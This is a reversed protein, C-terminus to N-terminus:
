AVWSRQLGRLTKALEELSELYRTLVREWLEQWDPPFDNMEFYALAEGFAPDERHIPYKKNRLKRIARLNSIMDTSYDPAV